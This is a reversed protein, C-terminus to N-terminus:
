TLTDELQPFSLGAAEAARPVLSTETLGPITQLELVYVERPAAIMDVRSMGRCGILRHAGLTIERAREAQAESIRAPIIEDTAGATYKAEYDYFENGPVIEILPLVRPDNNGLVAGTIETGEVYQEVLAEPGYHLALDLAPEIDARQKVLTVGLSSGEHAPKVFCPLDFASAVRDAAGGRESSLVSLWEPTPIGAREFLKKAIIKNLALASALVGSCTYPVGLLELLGQVTGNEGAGGHLAIFVVDPRAGEGFASLIASVDGSHVVDALDVSVARYRAPDLAALVKAGSMLCVEREASTGGTLVVVRLRKPDAM